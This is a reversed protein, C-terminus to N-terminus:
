GLVRVAEDPSNARVERRPSSGPATLSGALLVAGVRPRVRTRRNRSPPEAHEAERGAEARGSADGRSQTGLQLRAPTQSSLSPAEETAAEASPPPQMCAHPARRRRHWPRLAEAIFQKMFHKTFCSIVSSRYRYSLVIDKYDAMLTCVTVSERERNEPPSASIAPLGVPDAATMSKPILSRAM